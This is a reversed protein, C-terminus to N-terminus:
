FLTGAALALHEVVPGLALVPFFTLGGVVLIIGVLLGVFLGGHTPFTGSSPPVTRKAAVSGAIALIPVIIVFRGLVMALALSINYFLSNGNLGGFASGNNNTASAYAYLVESLGHPGPASIGALGAPTVMAIAGIGLVGIPAALIAIIALKIERSEIKKGLYEPTRGVMLGAIFVALLVFLLIGYLGSGVGGVVVEGLMMHIMPIMGALPLLSDHMANVAGCSTATTVAAFLASAAIGFRVEKGEMNVMNALAPNGQSEAWYLVSIAVIFILGMAAFIAWGQRQDSVMRGFCNTLGAGLAFIALMHILNTLGNPNEYPHAANANFFGGGNTGLHKIMMQSAVPGQAIVQQGGDLTQANVYDNMNQPVGQWVLVLAGVFCIPLLLYLTTRTTDVYFNGVTKASKRSFGRILAAAVAIGAAASLFNHVTLGAMQSLYSLTSEGGYNQWNTNTSFSIATNFALDPSMPGQGAPNFPLYQQLRLLAYLSLVALLHFALLALAYASWHQERREDIGCVRYIGREFPALWLTKGTFINAMYRGLLPTLAVVLVIYVLIQLIGNADM